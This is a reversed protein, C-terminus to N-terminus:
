TTGPAAAGLEDNGPGGQINDDLFTAGVKDNGAGATITAPGVSPGGGPGENDSLILDNGDGGDITLKGLIAAPMCAPEDQAWQLPYQFEDDGAGLSVNMQMTDVVGATVDCGAQAVPLSDAVVTDNGDGLNANISITPAGIVRPCDVGIGFLGQNCQIGGCCVVNGTFIGPRLPASGFSVDEGARSFSEHKAHIIVFHDGDSGSVSRVKLTVTAGNHTVDADAWAGAAVAFLGLVAIILLLASRRWIGM